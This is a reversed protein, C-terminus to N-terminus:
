SYRSTDMCVYIERYRGWNEDGVFKLTAIHKRKGAIYRANLSETGDPVSTRPGRGSLLSSPRWAGAGPHSGVALSRRAQGLRVACPSSASPVRHQCGPQLGRHRFSLFAACESHCLLPTEYRFTLNISTSAQQRATGGRRMPWRSDERRHERDTGTLRM